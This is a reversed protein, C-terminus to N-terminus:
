VSATLSVMAGIMRVMILERFWDNKMPQKKNIEANNM